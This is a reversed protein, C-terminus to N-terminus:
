AMATGNVATTAGITIAYFPPALAANSGPSAISTTETTPITTCRNPSLAVAADAVTIHTDNVEPGQFGM